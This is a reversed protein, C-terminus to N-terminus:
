EYIFDFSAVQDLNEVADFGFIPGVLLKYKQANLVQFNITDQGRIHLKFTADSSEARTEMSGPRLAPRPQGWVELNAQKEWLSATFSRQNETRKIELLM